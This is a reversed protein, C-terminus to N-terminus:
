RSADRAVGRAQDGAMIDAQDEVQGNGVLLLIAAMGPTFFVVMMFQNRRCRDRRGLFKKALM